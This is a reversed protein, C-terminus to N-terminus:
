VEVIETPVTDDCANAATWAANWAVTKWHEKPQKTAKPHNMVDHNKMFFKYCRNFITRAEKSWKSWQKKQVRNVNKTM